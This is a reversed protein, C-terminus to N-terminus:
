IKEMALKAEICIIKLWQRRDGREGFEQSERMDYKKAWVDCKSGDM